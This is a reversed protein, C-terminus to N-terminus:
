KLNYKRRGGYDDVAEVEVAGNLPQQLNVESFPAFQSLAKDVGESLKLKKGNVSVETVAFYYPTPNKLINGNAKLQQEAGARGEILTTPRYFLKVQTNMALSLVNEGEKPAPPIEQVNLWFLSERDKPLNPNINILRIIQKQKADVRFFTPAPTFFVEDKPQTTNDIWVQGGFTVNAHNTVEVSINKRGEPYIFRTSDLTFAAMAQSSLVLGLALTIFLRPQKNV